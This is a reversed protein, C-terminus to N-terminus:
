RLGAATRQQRIKQAALATAVADVRSMIYNQVTSKVTDLQQQRLPGANAALAEIRAMAAQSGRMAQDFNPTNVIRALAQGRTQVYTYFEDDSLPAYDVMTSNRGPASPWVNYENLKKVATDTSSPSTFQKQIPSQVPEGLVNLVPRQPLKSQVFPVSRVLMAQLDRQDYVTPDFIRDVQRVLNPVVVGSATRVALQEIKRGATEPNPESGLGALDTLTKLFPMELMVQASGRMAIVLRLTLDDQVRKAPNRDYLVADRIQDSYNGLAALLVNAPTNAYSIYRDGVKMSWPIAGSTRWRDKDEPSSPGGGYIAFSPNPNKLQSLSKAAIGIALATGLAAKTYLEGRIDQLQSPTLDKLKSGLIETRAFLARGAGIPTYNLGENAIAAAIRTFPALFKAPWRVIGYDSRKVADITDVLSGLAGYNKLFAIRRAYDLASEKVEKPRMSELIEGVRRTQKEGTYGEAAAQARATDVATKGYGLIRRAEDVAARGRLGADRQLRATLLAAKMEEAPMLYLVHQAKVIRDNYKWLNLIKAPKSQLITRALTAGIGQGVIPVGGKRGYDSLEHLRQPFLKSVRPGTQLGSRMIDVQEATTHQIGRAAAEFILPIDELRGSLMARSIETGMSALLSTSTHLGVKFHTTLGSILNTVYFAHAADWATFGTVKQVENLFRQQIEQRRGTQDAPVKALADAIQQLRGALEPSWQPLDLKAQIANWYKEEALAGQNTLVILRDALGPKVLGAQKAPRLLRDLAARKRQTVFQQFREKVANALKAAEAEPLGSAQAIKAALEEGAADGVTHHERIIQGFKLRLEKMAARIAMDVATGDGEALQQKRAAQAKSRIKKREAETRAKYLNNIATARQDHHPIGASELKQPLTGTGPAELHLGYIEAERATLLGAKVLDALVQRRIAQQLDTGPTAAAVDLATDIAQRAGTQIDPRATVAEIGERNIQDLTTRAEEFQPHFPALRDQATRQVQKRAWIIQGEPTMALWANMAQLSQAVDTVQKSFENDYFAVADAARGTASLNKIILQGLLMRVSGPLASTPDTFVHMAADPGGVATMIRHAFETDSENTRRDYLLNGVQYAISGAPQQEHEADLQDSFARVNLAGNAENLHHALWARAEAESFDKLNQKRLWEVGANVAKALNRTGVYAARIVHLMGNLAAKTLWVPASSVGEYLRTPDNRTAAIARNLIQEVVDPKDGHLFAQIWNVKTAPDASAIQRLQQLQGDIYRIRSLARVGDPGLSRYPGKGAYNLREQEVAREDWLKQLELGIPDTVVDYARRGRKIEERVHAQSDPFLKDYARGYIKWALDERALKASQGKAQAEPAAPRVPRTPEGATLEAPAAPRGPALEGVAEGPSVERQGQSAAPPGGTETEANQDHIAGYGPGAPKDRMEAPGRDVHLVADVPVFQDGYAGHLRVGLPKGADDLLHEAVAMPHGNVTFQEGVLTQHVPLPESEPRPTFAHREFLQTRAEAEALDRAQAAVAGREGIRRAGADVMAQALKDQTDIHEFGPTRMLTAVVNDSAEGTKGTGVTMLERARGKAQSVTDKFDGADAFNVGNPYHDEITDLIDPPRETSSRARNIAATAVEVPVLKPAPPEAAAAPEAIPDTEPPTFAPAAVPAPQDGAAAKEAARQEAIKRGALTRRQDEIVNQLLQLDETLGPRLPVPEPAVAPPPAEVVPAPVDATEPGSPQVPEAPPAPPLEDDLPRAAPGALPAATEGPRQPLYPPLLLNLAGLGAGASATDKLVPQDNVVNEAGQSSAGLAAGESGTALRGAIFQALKTSGFRSVILKETAAKLPKPLVAFLAAQAVGSAVGRNIARQAAEEDSKGEQKARDYDAQLHDGLSQTGITFPAAPGTALLPLFGGAAGATKVLLKGANQPEVPYTEDANDSLAKGTQYLPNGTIAQYLEAPHELRDYRQQQLKGLETDRPVWAFGPIGATEPTIPMTELLAGAGKLVGGVGKVAAAGAANGASALTSQLPEGSSSFDPVPEGAQSFDPVAEVPTGSASFDIAM